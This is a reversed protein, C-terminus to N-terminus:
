ATLLDVLRRASPSKQAARELSFHDRIANAFDVKNYQAGRPNKNLALLRKIEEVPDGWTDSDGRAQFAKPLRTLVANIAKEDALYWSELCPVAIVISEKPVPRPFTRLLATRCPFEDLDRVFVPDLGKDKLLHALKKADSNVNADGKADFYSSVAGAFERAITASLVLKECRGPVVLGKPV